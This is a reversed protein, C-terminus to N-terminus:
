IRAKNIKSMHATTVEDIHGSIIALAEKFALSDPLTYSNGTKTLKPQLDASPNVFRITMLMEPRGVNFAFNHNSHNTKIGYCLEGNNMIPDLYENMWNLLEEDRESRPYVKLSTVAEADTLTPIRTIKTGLLKPNPRIRDLGISKTSGECAQALSCVGCVRENASWLSGFCNVFNGSKQPIYAGVADLNAAVEPTVLEAHYRAAMTFLRRKVTPDVMDPVQLNFVKCLALEAQRLPTEINM